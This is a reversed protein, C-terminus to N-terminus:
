GHKELNEFKNAYEYHYYQEYQEYCDCLIRQIKTTDTTTDGRENIM